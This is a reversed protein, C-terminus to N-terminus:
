LVFHIILWIVGVTLTLLTVPLGVKLFEMFVIPQGAQETIGATVLNAEAGVLSGNGGMAAGM